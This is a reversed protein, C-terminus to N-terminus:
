IKLHQQWTTVEPEEHWLAPLFNRGWRPLFLHSQNDCSTPGSHCLPFFINLIWTIRNSYGLGQIRQSRHLCFNIGPRISIQRLHPKIPKHRWCVPSCHMPFADQYWSVSASPEYWKLSTSAPFPINLHPDKGCKHLPGDHELTYRMVLFHHTLGVRPLYKLIIIFNYHPFFWHFTM